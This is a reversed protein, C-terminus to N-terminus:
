VQYEPPPPLTALVDLEYATDLASASAPGAHIRPSSSPAPAAAAAAAAAPTEDMQPALGALGLGVVPSAPRAAPATTDNLLPPQPPSSPPASAAAAAATDLLPSPVYLPLANADDDVNEGAEEDGDGDGAIETRAIRDVVVFWPPECGALALRWGVNDAERVVRWRLRYPRRDQRSWQEALAALALSPRHKYANTLSVLLLIACACFAIMPALQTGKIAILLALLLISTAGAAILARTRFAAGFDKISPFSSLTKNITVMREHFEVNSLKAYYSFPPFSFLESCASERTLSTLFIMKTEVTGVLEEPMATDVFNPGADYRVSLMCLTRARDERLRAVTELVELRVAHSAPASSSSSSSSSSSAAAPSGPPAVAASSPVDDNVVFADFARLGPSAHPTLRPSASAAVATLFAPSRPPVRPSSSSSSSSTSASSSLASSSSSPAPPAPPAEAANPPAVDGGAPRAPRPEDRVVLTSISDTSAVSKLKVIRNATATPTETATPKTPPSQAADLPRRDAGQEHVFITPKLSNEADQAPGVPLADVDLDIARRGSSHSSSSVNNASSPSSASLRLPPAAAPPGAAM